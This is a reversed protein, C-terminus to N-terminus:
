SNQFTMEVVLSDHPYTKPFSPLPATKQISGVVVTDIAENGSTKTLEIHSISGNRQITFKASIEFGINKKLFEVSDKKWRQGVHDSVLEVYEDITMGRHHTSYQLYLFLFFVLFSSLVFCLILLLLFLYDMSAAVELGNM